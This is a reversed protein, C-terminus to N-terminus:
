QMVRDGPTIRFIRFNPEKRDFNMVGAFAHNLHNTSVVMGGQFDPAVSDPWIFEPGEAVTEFRETAPDFTLVRNNSVDTVWLRGDPGFSIGDSGGGLRFPGEVAASIAEDSIEPDRLPRADIRYIADGTTLSWYLTEGDPSLAIGNIGAMLPSGPFVEEGNVRLPREPDNQVSPHAHLVRRAERAAVNYVIIGSPTPGGGRLGTDSIFVFGNAEDIVLDNLFSTTPNALEPEIPFRDLEEGTALDFVVIKQAGAPSRDEGAVYGKDLLWVRNQSDVAAGLVNRLGVPNDLHHMEANPWPQLISRGDEVVVRNFTAPVDRSLIRPTTVYVVGNADVEVGHLPARTHIGADFFAERARDDEFAWEMRVWSHLLEMEYAFAPPTLAGLGLAAVATSTKLLKLM